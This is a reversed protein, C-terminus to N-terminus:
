CELKRNAPGDHSWGGEIVQGASPIEGSLFESDRGELVGADAGSLPRLIQLVKM